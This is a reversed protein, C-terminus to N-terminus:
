PENKTKNMRPNSLHITVHVGNYYWLSYNWHGLFGRCEVQWRDRGWGRGIVSRKVTEMTKGKGSIWITPIMCYTAKESQSRESLLTCKLTRWTKEHCSLENRKLVSYYGTTQIYGLKCMWRNFSVKTAELNQCNHSFSRYVDTHLKKHPYTKLGKPYIGLLM